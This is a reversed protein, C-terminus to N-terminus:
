FVTCSGDFAYYSWLMFKQLTRLYHMIFCRAEIILKSKMSILSLHHRLYCQGYSSRVNSSRQSANKFWTEWLVWPKMIVVYVYLKVICLRIYTCTQFSKESFESVPNCLLFPVLASLHKSCRSSKTSTCTHTHLRNLPQIQMCLLASSTHSCLNCLIFTIWYESKVVSM